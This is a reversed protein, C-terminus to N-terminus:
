STEELTQISGTMLRSGNHIGLQEFLGKQAMLAWRHKKDVDVAEEGPTATRIDMVNGEASIVALSIPARIGEMEYTEPYSAEQDLLLIISGLIGKGVHRLGQARGEFSDAIRVPLIARTDSTTVQITATPMKLVEPPIYSGSAKQFRPALVYLGILIGIGLIVLGQFARIGWRKWRAFTSSGQSEM